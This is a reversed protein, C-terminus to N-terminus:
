IFNQKVTQKVIGIIQERQEETVPCDTPVKLVAQKNLPAVLTEYWLCALLLRTVGSQAHFCDRHIYPFGSNKLLLMAEGSPIIGDAHIDKAARNYANRIPEFMEEYTEFGTELIKKSGTQYAWTQHIYQKAEPCVAKVYASLENLYPQFTAYVAAAASQQQFVVADWRDAHLAESISVPGTLQTDYLPSYAKTNALMNEHHLSLRCGGIYLTCVRLETDSLSALAPLYHTADQSFSNGITLIKKM